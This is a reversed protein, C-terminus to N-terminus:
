GAEAEHEPQRGPFDGPQPDGFHARGREGYAAMEQAAETPARYAENRDLLAGAIERDASDRGAAFGEQGAQHYLGAAAALDVSQPEPTRDAASGAKPGFGTM